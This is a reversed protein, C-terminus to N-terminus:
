RRTSPRRSVRAPRARSWCPATPRASGPRSASNRGREAMGLKDLTMLAAAKDLIRMVIGEGHVSPMTVVRIDVTHGEVNLGVRGDQPVRKESIDLDAMIKVRSVMGAVMRRPITTTESLVGDVRFRVRMERGDPEFHIDSAGDEM